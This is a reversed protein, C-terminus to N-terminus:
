ERPGVQKTELGLEKTRMGAEEMTHRVMPTNFLSSM